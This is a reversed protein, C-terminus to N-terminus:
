EAGVANTLEGIGEVKVTVTDGDALPGVGSPTGTSIIDGPELTMVFSIFAILEELGCILQSTDSSQRRSGNVWTEVARAEPGAGIAVAPGIPAFTDFGKARAYQVDKTQLDRATVDNVCILGLVYKWADAKPVRHARRGIVIGLEGEYDVRGVGPPIVVSEGPGIVATSPKLFLMPEAPLPKGMERAHDRYNLGVCVLKSPSVPALLRVAALGGAVPEGATYGNFISGNTPLARLLDGRRGIAHFTGGAGSVRYLHDM